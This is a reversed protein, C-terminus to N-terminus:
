RVLRSQVRQEDCGVRTCAVMRSEITMREDSDEYSASMYTPKWGTLIYDFRHWGIWCRLFRRAKIVIHDM